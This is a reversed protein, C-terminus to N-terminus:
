RLLLVRPPPRMDLPVHALACRSQPDAAYRALWLVPGGGLHDDFFPQNEPDQREKETTESSHPLIVHM